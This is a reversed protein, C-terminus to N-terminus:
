HIRLINLYHSRTVEVVRSDLRPHSAWALLNEGSYRVMGFRERDSDGEGEGTGEVAGEDGVAVSMRVWEVFYTCVEGEGSGARVTM